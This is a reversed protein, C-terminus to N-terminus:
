TDPSRLQSIVKMWPVIEYRVVYPIDLADKEVVWAETRNADSVRSTAPLRFRGISAGSPDLVLWTQEGAEDPGAIWTTFDSGVQVRTVPPFYRVRELFERLAAAFRRRDAVVPIELSEEIDPDYYGDPVPLPEYAIRRHFLTDGEADVRTVGYEAPGTGTWSRGEVIVAGSGDRAFNWTDGRDLPHRRNLVGDAAAGATIQVHAAIALLALTDRVMGATDLAVLPMTTFAGRERGGSSTLRIAAARSESLPILPQFGTTGRSDSVYAHYPITEAEGSAVDFFTFRGLIQDGVWITGPGRWGLMAPATLEGPGAGRGAGLDRVFEGGRTFVRIRGEQPLSVYVGDGDALVSGVASFGYVPHESSGILVTRRLTWEPVEEPAGGPEPSACALALPAPLLGKVLRRASRM